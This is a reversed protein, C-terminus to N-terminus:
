ILHPSNIVTLSESQWGIEVANDIMFSFWSYYGHILLSCVILNDELSEGGLCVFFVYDM